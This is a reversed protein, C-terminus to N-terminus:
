LEEECESYPDARSTGDEEDEDEFFDPDGFCSSLTMENDENDEHYAQENGFNDKLMQVFTDRGQLGILWPYGEIIEANGESTSAPETAHNPPTPLGHRMLSSPAAAGSTHQEVVSISDHTFRCEFGGHISFDGPQACYQLTSSVPGNTFAFEGYPLLGLGPLRPTSHDFSVETEKQIPSRETQPQHERIREVYAALQSHLTSTDLHKMCTNQNAAMVAELHQIVAPLMGVCKSDQQFTPKFSAPECLDDAQVTNCGLSLPISPYGLYNQCHPSGSMKFFSSLLDLGNPYKKHGDHPPIKNTPQDGMDVSVGGPSNQGEEHGTENSSSMSSSQERISFQNSITSAFKSAMTSDARKLINIVVKVRITQEFRAVRFFFQTYEAKVIFHLNYSISDKDEMIINADLLRQEDVDSSFPVIGQFGRMNEDWTLWHATTSFIISKTSCGGFNLDGRAPSTYKPILVFEEGEAVPHEFPEFSVYDPNWLAGVAFEDIRLNHGFYSLDKIRIGIHLDGPEPGTNTFCDHLRIIESVTNLTFSPCRFNRFAQKFHYETALVVEALSVILHYPAPQKGRLREPQSIDAFHLFNELFLLKEHLLSSLATRFSKEWLLLQEVEDLKFGKWVRSMDIHRTVPAEHYLSKDVWPLDGDRYLHILPSYIDALVDMPPFSKGTLVFKKKPLMQARLNLDKSESMSMDVSLMAKCSSSSHNRHGYSANGHALGSPETYVQLQADKHKQFVPKGEDDSERLPASPQCNSM